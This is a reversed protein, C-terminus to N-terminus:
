LLDWNGNANLSLSAANADDDVDETVLAVHSRPTILVSATRHGALEFRVFRGGASVADELRQQLGVLDEDAALGLSLGDVIAETQTRTTVTM